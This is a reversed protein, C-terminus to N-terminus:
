LPLTPWVSGFAAEAESFALESSRPYASPDAGEQIGCLVATRTPTVRVFGSGRAAAVGLARRQPRERAEADLSAVCRPPSLCLM